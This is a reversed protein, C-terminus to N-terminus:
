IQPHSADWGQGSADWPTLLAPTPTADPFLRSNVTMVRGMEKDTCIDAVQCQVISAGQGM